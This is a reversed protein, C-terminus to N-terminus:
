VAAPTQRAIDARLREPDFRVPSSQTKGFKTPPSIRGDRIMRTLTMSSVHLLACVEKFTLFAPM